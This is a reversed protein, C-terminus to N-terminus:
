EQYFDLKYKLMIVYRGLLLPLKPDQPTVPSDIGDVKQM